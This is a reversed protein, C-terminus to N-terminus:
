TKSYKRIIKITRSIDSDLHIEQGVKIPYWAITYGHNSNYDEPLVINGNVKSLYIWPLNGVLEINVGIKELRRRFIELENMNYHSKCV